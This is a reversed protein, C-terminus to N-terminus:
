TRTSISNQDSLATALQGLKTDAAVYFLMRRDNELATDEHTTSESIKEVGRCQLISTKLFHCVRTMDEITSKELKNLIDYPDGKRDLFQEVLPDQAFFYVGRPRETDAMITEPHTM